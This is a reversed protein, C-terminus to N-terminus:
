SDGRMDGTCQEKMASVTLEVQGALQMQRDADMVTIGMAIRQSDELFLPFAQATDHM